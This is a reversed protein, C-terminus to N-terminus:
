NLFNIVQGLANECAADYMVRAVAVDQLALGTSDFLTIGSSDEKRVSLEGNIVQGLSGAIAEKSYLGHHLPVNIEGSHTAQEFDDVFVRADQLIEAALEQKGPADAGMANIHNAPNQIMAREIIPIRSPTSTCVIDCNAVQELSGVTANHEEAFTAATSDDRDTVIIELHPFIAHHAQLLFNAQVGCGLLGLSSADNPALFKSAVAAAAGTRVATLYTGDMVALPLATQPDSLIYLGMVTPLNFRTNNEPHSNVWKVGASEGFFAPMARFDGNFQELSLYVKAPMQAEGRSFAGLANEVALIADPMSIAEQLDSQTLIRTAM